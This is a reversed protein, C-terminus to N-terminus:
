EEPEDNDTPVYYAAKTLEETYIRASELMGLMLWVPADESSLHMLSTSGDPRLVEVTAIYRLPVYGEPISDLIDAM